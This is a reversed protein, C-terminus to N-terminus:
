DEEKKLPFKCSFTGRRWMYSMAYCLHFITYADPNMDEPKKQSQIYGYFDTDVVAGAGGQAPPRNQENFEKDGSNLWRNTGKQNSKYDCYNCKFPKEGTHIMEHIRLTGKQNCKYDCYNCKFPKEGTHIMEHIQLTGKKNCRMFGYREKRIASTIVTTCKFPKEGTHIMEHIRLTGKQNCKYDCYNFKFPKEGTHIMVHIRLTGKQNCNFDCYNCKFRKEGTHIMEHVRVTGKQNSKYDCYNCKFPKEGTHIMEHIRLTGKQNCKYDCYNCKFPKNGSHIMEHKRLHGKQNCKYDCYNCKFPKEGTHIMEHIRLTGKHNSKYDCYNCKFPKEGTHIMEHIRLTGKQNCKYDCYNCKFPKEGTHIMEHIRLTGKQNCKYDCYNCKFPKEGTHIREHIRLRGNNCSGYDCYRCEYPKEGAHTMESKRLYTVFYKEDGNLRQQRELAINEGTSNNSSGSSLHARIHKKLVSKSRFRKGCHHCQYITTTVHPTPAPETAHLKYTRRGVRCTRRAADVLLRELRVSCSGRRGSVVAPARVVPAVIPRHPREPGLVLEDKVVHEDYLGALMAAESVGCGATSDACEEKVCAEADVFEAEEKVTVRDTDWGPERKVRAVGGGAIGEM